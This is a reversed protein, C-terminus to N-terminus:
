YLERTYIVKSDGRFIGFTARGTPDESYTGNGDWDFRLFDLGAGTLTSLDYSLAFYGTNGAGTASLSLGAASSALPSNAITPTSVLGAPSPTRALATVPVLTCSDATNAVFLSGNWYEATLPVSLAALESGNANTFAMRGYRMEKGSTFGIGNGPTAAGFRAPNATYAVADLDLVNLALSLDANFPALPVSRSFALLPGSSFAVTVVGAGAGTVTPANPAGPSVSGSAAGYALGTLAGATMRMWTGAYNQTTSGAANRATATLVPTQASAYGFSQGVYTFAGVGCATQFRPTNYAVDFHQPCFRGVTSTPTGLTDGAGLYSADAVSARLQVAGVEDWTFTTGVFTGNPATASFASGNGISGDNATGNRGGVPAVLSSATLKIGEALTERGYNQTRSGEADRAEVVVRFPDGAAVFVTATPVSVAPNAVGAPTTVATIAFDAPKVVFANTAGSIAPSVTADRTSILMQGVDKYKASVSAQGNSFTVPLAIPAASNSGISAANITPTVFGTAPNQWTSWWQLTKAGTYTEIVGCLPDTPTQGYASINLNFSTGATKTTIPDNIPNPPPNSLASATVTFGSAAWALTGETDDDRTAPAASVYADVDIPTAGEPYSLAFTASGLDLPSYTYTALGDNAVADAFSGNGSTLTWTGKGSQTDLTIAGGYTTLVADTVSRATVTIPEALCYIGSGDHSIKFHHASAVCTHREAMVAAIESETLARDYVRLEDIGGGLRWQPVGESSGDLEGGISADGSDTGWTGTYGPAPDLASLAGDVYILRQKTTLRHVAALHHWTGASYIVATDLTIPTLSRSFFRVIGPLGSDGVSLAWGGTNNFDDAFVRQDGNTDNVKVWAMVTFSGTLNPFSPLRVYDDNRDFQGYRCTGPDGSQAPTTNQTTPGNTATGNYTGSSDTVQGAAASWAAQEMRWEAIPGSATTGVELKVYDSDLELSGSTRLDNTVVLLTVTNGGGLYNAPSVSITGSLVDEAETNAGSELLTYTSSGYNWIYLRAGDTRGAAPNIAKGNWTATLSAVSASPEDIQIVYRTQVYNNATATTQSYFTHDYIEVQNYQATTFVTAPSTANGPVQTTSTGRYAFINTGQTRNYYDYKTGSGATVGSVDIVDLGAGAFAAYARTGAANLVVDSASAGGVSAPDFVEIESMRSPDSVDLAAVGAVGHAVFAVAGGSALTVSQYDASPPVHQSLLVPTTANAVNLAFLGQAGAAVFATEGDASLATEYATGGTAYTGLLAPAASNTVNVIALGSGSDALYARTGDASLTVGRASGASNYVGLLMPLAPNTINVIVLGQGSAAVYAKTGDASIAVGLAAGTTAYAGLSVPLAPVVVSIIRLGDSGNALYLKTGDPSLAAGSATGATDLAGLLAPAAPNTVNVLALNSSGDAVYATTGASSLVSATASGASDYRGLESMAAQASPAPLFLLCAAVIWLSELLSRSLRM